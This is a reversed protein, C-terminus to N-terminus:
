GAKRKVQVGLRVRDPGLPLVRFDIGVPQDFPLNLQYTVTEFQSDDEEHLVSQFLQALIARHQQSRPSAEGNEWKTVALARVKFRAAFIERTERLRKRTLAIKEADSLQFGSM